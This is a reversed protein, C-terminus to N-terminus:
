VHMVFFKLTKKKLDSLEQCGNLTKFSDVSIVDGLADWRFDNPDLKIAESFLEIAASYHGLQAM